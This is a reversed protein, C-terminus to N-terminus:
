SDNGAIWSLANRVCVLDSWARNNEEHSEQLAAQDLGLNKDGKKTEKGKDMEEKIVGKFIDKARIRTGVAILMVSEYSESSLEPNCKPIKMGKLNDLKSM